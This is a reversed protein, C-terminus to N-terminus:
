QFQYPIKDTDFPLRWEDPEAHIYPNNFYNIFSSETHDLNQLGHWIGPPITILTPRMRSLHFVNTQGRTASDARDDFLVLKISGNIVFFTDVQFDHMHWASISKGRLIVHIMHRIQDPGVDWDPRWLETTIGNGTIINPVEKKKVGVVLTETPQGESTITQHDRIADELPM